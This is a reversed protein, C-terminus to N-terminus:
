VKKRVHLASFSAIKSFMLSGGADTPHLGDWLLSKKDTPQGRFYTNADNIGSEDTMNFYPLKYKKAIAIVADRSRYLATKDAFGTNCPTIFMINIDSKIAYLNNIVKNLAGYLTYENYNGDSDGASIDGLGDRPADNVGMYIIVNDIATIDTYFTTGVKTREVLSKNDYTGDDGRKSISSGAYANRTVTCGTKFEILEPKGYPTATISDGYMIIKTDKFLNEDKFGGVQRWTIEATPTSKVGEFYTKPSRAYMRYLVIQAGSVNYNEVSLFVYLDGPSPNDYPFKTRDSCQVFYLGSETIENFNAVNKQGKFSYSNGLIKSSSWTQSTNTKTDDISTSSTGSDGKDGKSGKLSNLFDQTTGSNGQDLWIQYASKGDKGIGGSGTQQKTWAM